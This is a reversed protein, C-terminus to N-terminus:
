RVDDDLVALQHQDARMDRRQGRRGRVHTGIRRSRSAQQQMALLDVPQDAFDLAGAVRQRRDVEMVALAADLQRDAKRLALLLVVLARRDLIALPVALLLPDHAAAVRRNARSLAGSGWRSTGARVVM